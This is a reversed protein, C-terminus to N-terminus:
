ICLKNNAKINATNHVTLLIILVLKYEFYNYKIASIIAFETVQNYWGKSKGLWFEGKNVENLVTQIQIEWDWDIEGFGISFCMLSSWQM